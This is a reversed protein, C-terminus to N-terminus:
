FLHEFREKVKQILQRQTKSPVVELVAIFLESVHIPFYEYRKVLRKWVYRHERLHVVVATFPPFGETILKKKEKLSLTEACILVNLIDEASGDFFAQFNDNINKRSLMGGSYRQPAVLDTNRSKPPLTM